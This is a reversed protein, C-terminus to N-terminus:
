SLLDEEDERRCLWIIGGGDTELFKIMGQAILATEGANFRKRRAEQKRTEDDSDSPWAAYFAERIAERSVAVVAPGEHGFPRAVAGQDGVVDRFAALYATAAPSLKLIHPLDRHAGEAGAEVWCSTVAEGEEDWAGELTIPQLEFGRKWGQEGDRYKTLAIRRNRVKGDAEIEALVALIADASGTFGSSGRVGTESAKGYHAIGLVLAGTERALKQMAQMHRTAEAADNEDRFGFAAAITDIIVLSLPLGHRAKLEAAEEKVHALAEAFRRSDALGEVAWWSVPLRQPAEPGLRGARMADLRRELSAMAEGALYITAGQRLVKRGFFASGEALAGALDLAVFTKGARSQGALLAAGTVPLLGKVLEPGPRPNAPDGHRYIRHRRATKIDIVESM